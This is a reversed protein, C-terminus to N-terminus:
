RGSPRSLAAAARTLIADADLRSADLVIEAAAVANALRRQQVRYLAEPWDAGRRDRITALDVSLAIVVDPEGRRWLTPIESHEQGRVAADYGLRKLGEVLTTKGSACPGVVVVRRADDRGAGADDIRM